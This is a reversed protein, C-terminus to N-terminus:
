KKKSVFIKGITEIILFYAHANPTKIPCFDFKSIIITLTLIVVHYVYQLIKFQIGNEKFLPKM